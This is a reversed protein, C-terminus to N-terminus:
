LRDCKAKNRKCHYYPLASAIGKLRRIVKRREDYEWIKKFAFAKIGKYKELAKLNRRISSRGTKSICKDLCPSNVTFYIVCRNQGKLVKKLYKKLRYESHHQINKDAKAAILNSSVYVENNQLKKKVKQTILDQGSYKPDQCKYRKVRFAVAYQGMGGLRSLLAFTISQLLTNIM